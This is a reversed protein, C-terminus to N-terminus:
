HFHVAERVELRLLLSYLTLHPNIYITKIMNPIYEEIRVTKIRLPYQIKDIAKETYISVIMHNKKGRHVTHNIVKVSKRILGAKCRQFIDLNTM